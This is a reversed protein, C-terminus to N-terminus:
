AKPSGDARRRRAAGGAGSRRRAALMRRALAAADGHPVLMGDRRGAGFRPAGPQGLGAVADRVGRGRGRSAGARRPRRFCTRGPRGRAAPDEGDESVFGHFTVAEGLGLRGRAARAGASLRRHRRHGAFIPGGASPWRWRGSRSSWEKIVSSGDSTCSPRRRPAAVAPGPRSIRRTWARIFSGSGGPRFAARWSTTAPARASRTFAPAGTPGRCRGSRSGLRDGRGAM